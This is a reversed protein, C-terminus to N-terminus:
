SLKGLLTALFRDAIEEVDLEDLRKIPEQAEQEPESPKVSDLVSQILAQAQKLADKNKTSLVAGVKLEKEVEPDNGGQQYAEQKAHESVWERAEEMSWQDVDFLYTIVKKCEGCYLAKIGEKESIDITRIRHGDHKGEEGPVPVRHYDETTEPKTVLELEKVTILGSDRAQVLADPNSPVPVASLELLEQKTYTRRPAKEGDGEEIADTDPIFGVSTASMFGGKYLRYITDAFEYTDKDAFEINFKLKGDEIWVKKAKGIPPEDYRHAWAFVPNKKYNTLDWGSAKIVEGDRDQTETSGIFELVRDSVEKIDPSIFVKRIIDPM